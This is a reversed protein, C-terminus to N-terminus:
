YDIGVGSTASRHCKLCAGDMAITAPAYTATWNADIRRTNTRQYTGGQKDAITFWAADNYKKTYGYAGLTETLGGLVYNTHTASATTTAEWVANSHPFAAQGTRADTADHCAKCINSQAWATENVMQTATFLTHGSIPRTRLNPSGYTGTYLPDQEGRLPDNLGTWATAQTTADVFPRWAGLYANASLGNFSGNMHCGEDSCVYGTQIARGRAIDAATVPATVATADAGTLGPQYIDVLVHDFVYGELDADDKRATVVQQTSGSQLAAATLFDSWDSFMASQGAGYASIGVGHPSEAHCLYNTCNAGHRNDLNSGAAVKKSSITSTSGHCAICGNAASGPLLKEGGQVAKHVSHCVQCKISTTAYNGHPTTMSPAGIVVATSTGATSANTATAKAEGWTIYAAKTGGAALTRTNYYYTRNAATDGGAMQGPTPITTLFASSRNPIAGMAMATTATACVLVVAIALVLLTKKM